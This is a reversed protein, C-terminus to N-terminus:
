HKNKKAEAKAEAKEAKAREKEEREAEEKERQEEAQAELRIESVHEALGSLIRTSPKRMCIFILLIIVVSAFTMVLTRWTRSEHFMAETYTIAILGLLGCIAYLIKVAEKHTFGMDVLRHHLHGRDPAFPSHGTAVRRMIATFTDLIPLAFISFPVLFSLMTHLKFLGQVSIISLTYGLFLAGTDGMFIRAPNTNYPLFGVCSAVLIATLMANGFDGSILTVGFMSLATIASVGCALGDLGDILNIANTLGTIWLVTIPIAWMGFNITYGFLTIYEIRVNFFVVAITSSGLQVFLKVLASLRFVDDLIGLLVLMAGGIWIAYLHPSHEAFVMTALFFAIFIGLGGIRPMPKRHMRRADTPVDIAGIRYALLRVPPTVTYATLAACILAMIAIFIDSFDVNNLIDSHDM